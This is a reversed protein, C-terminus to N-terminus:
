RLLYKDTSATRTIFSYELYLINLSSDLYVFLSFSRLPTRQDPLYALLRRSRIWYTHLLVTILRTWLCSRSHTTANSFSM